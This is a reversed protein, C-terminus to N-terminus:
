SASRERIKAGSGAELGDHGQGDDGNETREGLRVGGADGVDLQPRRDVAGEGEIDGSFAQKVSAQTLKRGGEIETYPKEDWGEIKFTASARTSM